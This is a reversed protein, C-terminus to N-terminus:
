KIAKYIFGKYEVGDKEKLKVLKFKHRSKKILETLSKYKEIEEGDLSYKGIRVGLNYQYELRKYLGYSKLWKKVAGGSVGYKKGIKTLNYGIEQIDNELDDKTPKHSKSKVACKNSCYKQSSKIKAVFEKGCILCKRNEVSVTKETCPREKKKKEVDREAIEEETLPKCNSFKNEELYRTQNKGRFNDTFSHCNPCLIQLNELRNDFHDGNIHHLELKIPLGMWETNGCCECKEEKYGNNFLRKKLDNSAIYSCNTLVEDMTRIHNAKTRYRIGKNWSVRTFHSIDLDFEMILKKAIYYGGGHPKVGIKRCFETINHCEKIVTELSGKTREVMIANIILGASPFRVWVAKCAM